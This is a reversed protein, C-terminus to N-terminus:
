KYKIYLHGIERKYFKYFFTSADSKQLTRNKQRVLFNVLHKRSYIVTLAEDKERGNKELAFKKIM